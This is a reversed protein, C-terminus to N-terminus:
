SLLDQIAVIFFLVLAVLLSLTSLGAGIIIILLNLFVQKLSRLVKKGQAVLEGYILFLFLKASMDRGRKPEKSDM